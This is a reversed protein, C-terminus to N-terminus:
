KITKGTEPRAYFGLIVGLAVSWVAALGIQLERPLSFTITHAPIWFWLLSYMSKHINTWNSKREPINDLIRHLIVLLLGFQVNMLVSIYLARLIGTGEPLYGHQMLADVFGGFGVFAYKICVALISWVIMKWLILGPTFPLYFAKKQVWRSAMEGLTGLIAFQIVASLVPHATVFGIYAEVM